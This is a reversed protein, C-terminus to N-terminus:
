KDDPFAEWYYENSLVPEMGEEGYERQLNLDVEKVSGEEIRVAKVLKHLVQKCDTSFLFPTDNNRDIQLKEVLVLFQKVGLLEGIAVADILQINDIQADLQRIATLIAPNDSNLAYLMERERNLKHWKSNKNEDLRSKMDEVASGGRWPITEKYRILANIVAQEIKEIRVMKRNDCANIVANNCQYYYNYGPTKGRSGSHLDCSSRCKACYVLGSLATKQSPFQSKREVRNKILIAEIVTSQGETLLVQDPHTNYIVEWEDKPRRKGDKVRLYCTHGALVPSRLWNSLGAPSFQFIGRQGRRSSKFRQIGYKANIAKLTAHLSKENYFTKLIDRGIDAKSLGPILEEDKYEKKKFIPANEMLCLFPKTDLNFKGDQVIYGFPPNIARASDRLYQWGHRIREELRDSEFQALLSLMGAQLKGGATSFNFHDDLLRLEIGLETVMEVFTIATKLHRSIRDLRTAVICSVEGRRCAAILKKFEPRDDKRGSGIEQIVEDCGANHLRATQQDLSQGEAQEARSVRSYGVVKRVMDEDL